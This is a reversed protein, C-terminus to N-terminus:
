NLEAVMERLKEIKKVRGHKVGAADLKARLVTEESDDETQEAEVSTTGEVIESVPLPAAKVIEPLPAAVARSPILHPFNHAIIAAEEDTLTPDEVSIKGNLTKEIRAIDGALALLLLHRQGAPQKSKTIVCRILRDKIM